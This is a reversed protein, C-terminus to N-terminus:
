IPPNGHWMYALCSGDLSAIRLRDKPSIREQLWGKASYPQGPAVYAGAPSLPFSHSDQLLVGGNPDLARVVCNMAYAPDAGEDTIVARFTLRCNAQPCHEKATHTLSVAVKLPVDVREAHGAGGNAACGALGLMACGVVLARGAMRQRTSIRSAVRAQNDSGNNRVGRM